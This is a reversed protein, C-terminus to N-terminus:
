GRAALWWASGHTAAHSRRIDALLDEAGLARAVVDDARATLDLCARLDFTGIRKGSNKKYAVHEAARAQIRRGLRALEDRAAAPLARPDIPFAQLLAGTVDFGDGHALWWWFLWAGALLALAADRERALAFGLSSYKTQAVPAGQADFAPPLAACVIAFSYCNHKFHLRASGRPATADGLREGRALLRALWRGQLDSAPRPVGLDPHVAGTVDAFALREFVRARERATFRVLPTTRWRTAADDPVDPDDPDRPGVLLISTRTRVEAEFLGSPIRDFSAVRLERRSRALVDDRLTRTGRSFLLSLPVILGVRGAPRTVRLAGEVFLPYLDGADRSLLGTRRALELQEPSPRAYPPNGVIADFGPAERAFADPFASAHSVGTADSLALHDGRHLAARPAGACRDLEDATARLVLDCIALAGPDLDVGRLNHVIALAGPTALEAPTAHGLAAAIARYARVLRALAGLLFAGGGCAPDLVCLARVAALAERACAPDRAVREEWPSLLAGLTEDVIFAVVDEPTYYVGRSRRSPSAALVVEGGQRVVRRACGLEHAQVLQRALAADCPRDFLRELPALEAPQLSILTPAGPRRHRQNTKREDGTGPPRQCNTAAPRDHEELAAALERTLERGRMASRPRAFARRWLAALVENTQADLDDPDGVRDVEPHAEPHAPRRALLAGLSVRAADVEVALARVAARQARDLM